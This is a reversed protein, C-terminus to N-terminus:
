FVGDNTNCVVWAFDSFLSSFRDGSRVLSGPCLSSKTKRERLDKQYGYDEIIMRTVRQVEKSVEAQPHSLVFPMGGVVTQGDSSIEDAVLFDITKEVDRIDIGFHMSPRNIVLKTKGNHHLSDLLNLSLKLNKVSPLDISMLLVIQTSM